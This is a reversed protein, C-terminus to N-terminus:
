PLEVPQMQPQGPQKVEKSYIEQPEAVGGLEALAAKDDAEPLNPLGPHARPSIPSPTFASWSSQQRQQEQRESLAIMLDRM